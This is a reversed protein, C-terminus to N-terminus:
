ALRRVDSGWAWHGDDFEIIHRSDLEGPCVFWIDTGSTRGCERDVGFRIGTVKAKHWGDSIEYKLTEGIRVYFGEDTMEPVDHRAVVAAVVASTEDIKVLREQLRAIEAEAKARENKLRNVDSALAKLVHEQMAPNHTQRASASRYSMKPMEGAMTREYPTKKDLRGRKAYFDRMIELDLEEM